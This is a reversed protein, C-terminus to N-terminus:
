FQKIGKQVYWQQNKIKGKYCPMGDEIFHNSNKDSYGVIFLLLPEEQLITM